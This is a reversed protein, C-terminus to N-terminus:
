INKWKEVIRKLEEERQTGVLFKKKNKLTVAMGKSGSTNYATGYKTSIRIGWGGIFGYDLLELSEIEDWTVKKNVFPCKVNIGYNDIRTTLKWFWVMAFVLFGLIMSAWFGVAMGINEYLENEGWTAYVAWAMVAASGLMLVRLWWQDMKQEENFSVNLGKM